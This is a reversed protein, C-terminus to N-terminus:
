ARATTACHPRPPSSYLPAHHFPKIRHQKLAVAVHHGLFLAGLVRPQHPFEALREAPETAVLEIDKLLHRGVPAAAFRGSPEHLHHPEPVASMLLGHLRGLL